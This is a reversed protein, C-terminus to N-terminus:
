VFHAKSLPRFCSVCRCTIIYTLSMNQAQPGADTFSRDCLRTKAWSAVCHSHTCDCYEALSAM